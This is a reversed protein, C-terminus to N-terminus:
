TPSRNTTKLVMGMNLTRRWERRKRVGERERRRGKEEKRRRKGDGNIEKDRLYWEWM